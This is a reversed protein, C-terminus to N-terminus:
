SMCVIHSLKFGKISLVIYLTLKEKEKLGQEQVHQYRQQPPHGKLQVEGGWCRDIPELNYQFLQHTCDDRPKRKEEM